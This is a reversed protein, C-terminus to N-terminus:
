TQLPFFLESPTGSANEMAERILKQNQHTLHRQNNSAVRRSGARGQEEMEGDEGQLLAVDDNEEEHVNNGGNDCNSNVHGWCDFVEKIYKAGEKIQVKIWARTCCSNNDRAMVDRGLAVADEMIRKEDAALADIAQESERVDEWIDDYRKKDKAILQDALKHRVQLTRSVFWAALLSCIACAIIVANSGDFYEGGSSGCGKKKCEAVVFCGTVSLSCLVVVFMAHAADRLQVHLTYALRLLLCGTVM